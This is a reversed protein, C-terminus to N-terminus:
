YRDSEYYYWSKYVTHLLFYYWFKRFRYLRIIYRRMYKKRVSNHNLHVSKISSPHKLLLVKIFNGSVFSNKRFTISHNNYLFTIIVKHSCTTDDPIHTVLFVFYIWISDLHDYLQKPLSMFHLKGKYSNTLALNNASGCIRVSNTM